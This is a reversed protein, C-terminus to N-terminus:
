DPIFIINNTIQSVIDTISIIQDIIVSLKSLKEPFQSFSPHCQAM